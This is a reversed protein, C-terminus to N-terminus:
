AVSLCLKCLQENSLQKLIKKRRRNLEIRHDFPLKSYVRQELHLFFPRSLKECLHLDCVDRVGEPLGHFEASCGLEYYNRYTLQSSAEDPGMRILDHLSLDANVMIMRSRSAFEEDEYWPEELDVLREFMQHKVFLGMIQLYDSEKMGYGKQELRQAIMLAGSALRLRCNHWLESNLPAYSTDFQSEDPYAFSSLRAGRDLLVDVANPLVCAVAWQLPTQGQNDKADIQVTQNLEDNIQFFLEVFDDDVKGQCILHLPTVGYSSALNPDAGRRLLLEAVTRNGHRLTWHLPRDGFIDQADIEITRNQKKSIEFFDYLIQLDETVKCILHLPTEKKNNTRNRDAGRKLLLNVLKRNHSALALLLPTSGSKDRADILVTLNLEDNIKFFLEALDDGFSRKCIVHLLTTGQFDFLNPNDGKSLLLSALKSNHDALTQIESIEFFDYLVRLGDNMKCILHLLTEKNYNTRNLDVGARRLLSRAAKEDGHRLLLALHLLDSYRDVHAM